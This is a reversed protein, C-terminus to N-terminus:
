KSLKRKIIYICRRLILAGIYLSIGYLLYSCGTDECFQIKISSLKLLAMWVIAFIGLGLFFSIVDKYKNTKNSKM